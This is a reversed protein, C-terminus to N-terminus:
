TNILTAIHSFNRNVDPAVNFFDALDWESIKKLTPPDDEIEQDVYSYILGQKKVEIAIDAVWDEYTKYIKYDNYERHIAMNLSPHHKISESVIGEAKYYNTLSRFAIDGILETDPLIDCVSNARIFLQSENTTVTPWDGVETDHYQTEFGDGFEEYNAPGDNIANLVLQCTENSDQHFRKFKYNFEVTRETDLLDQKLATGPKTRYLDIGDITKGKHDWLVHEYNGSLLWYTETVTFPGTLYNGGPWPGYAAWEEKSQIYWDPRDPDWGSYETFTGIEEGLTETAGPLVKTQINTGPVSQLNNAAYLESLSFSSTTFPQTLAESTNPNVLNILLQTKLDIIVYSQLGDGVIYYALLAFVGLGCGKPNDKFGVIKPATWIQGTFQVLVDNGIEFAAGNCTMYEIPVDSLTSEQNVGLGQQTSTAAELTVSALDGDIATITGYRYTPKWKQWGPLMALNYFSAAPSMAMTPFLQGDRDASYAANGEHGPQINFYQSEGPVEILGVEGSLDETLDACWASTDMTEPIADLTENRKELSLKQLKLINLRLSAKEKEIRKDALEKELKEITTEDTTLAIQAALDDIETEIEEIETEKETIQEDINAIKGLNAAKEAAARDTNYEVRVSYQGGTGFGTITGKGM